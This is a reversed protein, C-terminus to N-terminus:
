RAVSSSSFCATCACRRAGAGAPDSDPRILSKSCPVGVLVNPHGIALVQLPGPSSLIGMTIAVAFDTLGLLNWAIAARRGAPNDSTAWWAVPLALLGVTVDGIGAPLAFAGPVAGLAWNVLFIGGFIRYLQLGILWSLPMADLVIAIRQSRLLFALGIVVPVFIAVPLPPPTRVVGLLAEFFGILALRWVIALWLTFPIAVALWVRLRTRGPLDTRALGLWLGVLTVGHILLRAVTAPIGTPGLQPLLTNLGLWAAALAVALLFRRAPGFSPAVLPESM